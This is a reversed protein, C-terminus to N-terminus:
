TVYKSAVGKGKTPKQDSLKSRGAPTMGLESALLRYQTIGASNMHRLGSERHDAEMKCWLALAYSDAEGLWPLLGIVENWIRGPLGKLHKPKVPEGDAVPADVSDRTPNFTGEIVKIDGDKKRNPM